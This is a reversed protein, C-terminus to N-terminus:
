QTLNRDNHLFQKPFSQKENCIQLGLNMMIQRLIGKSIPLIKKKTEVFDLMKM